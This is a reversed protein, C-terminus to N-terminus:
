NGRPDDFGGKPKWATVKDKIETLAENEALLAKEAEDRLRLWVPADYATNGNEAGLPPRYLKAAGPKSELLAGIEARLEEGRELRGNLTAYKDLEATHAKKLDEMAQDREAITAERETITGKLETIQDELEAVQVPLAQAQNAFYVLGAGAAVLAGLLLVTVMMLSGRSRRAAQADAKASQLEAASPVDAFVKPLVRPSNDSPVLAM